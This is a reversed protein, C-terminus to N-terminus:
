AYTDSYFPTNKVAPLQAKFKTGHRIITVLVAQRAKVDSYVFAPGETAKYQFGSNASYGGIPSCSNIMYRRTAVEKRFRASGILRHCLIRNWIRRKKNIDYLSQILNRNDSGLHPLPHSSSREFWVVLM